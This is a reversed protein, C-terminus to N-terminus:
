VARSGKLALLLPILQRLLVGCCRQVCCVAAARFMDGSVMPLTEYPHSPLDNQRFQHTFNDTMNLTMSTTGAKSHHSAGFPNTTYGSRGTSTFGGTGWSHLGSSNGYGM